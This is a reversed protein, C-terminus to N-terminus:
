ALRNDLANGLFLMQTRIVFFLNDWVFLLFSCFLFFLFTTVTVMMLATQRIPDMNAGAEWRQMGM